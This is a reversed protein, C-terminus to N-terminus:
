PQCTNSTSKYELPHFLSRLSIKQCNDSAFYNDYCIMRVSVRSGGHFHLPYSPECVVKSSACMVHGYCQLFVDSYRTQATYKLPTDSEFNRQYM